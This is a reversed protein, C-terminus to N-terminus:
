MRVKERMNLLQKYKKVTSERLHRPVKYDEASKLKYDGITEMAEALKVEDDPHNVGPVPKLQNFKGWQM